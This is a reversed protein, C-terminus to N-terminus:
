DADQGAPIGRFFAMIEAHTAYRDFAPLRDGIISQIFRSIDRAQLASIQNQRAIAIESGSPDQLLMTTYVIMRYPTAMQWVRTAEKVLFTESSLSYLHFM